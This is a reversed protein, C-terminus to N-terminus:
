TLELFDTGESNGFQEALKWVHDDQLPAYRIWRKHREIIDRYKALGFVTVNHGRRGLEVGLAINPQHDGRSGWTLFLVNLPRQGDWRFNTSINPLTTWVQNIEPLYDFRLLGLDMWLAVVILVGVAILAAGNFCCLM